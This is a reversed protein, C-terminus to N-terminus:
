EGSLSSLASTLNLGFDTLPFKRQVFNHFGLFDRVGWVVVVVAFVFLCIAFLYSGEIGSAGM